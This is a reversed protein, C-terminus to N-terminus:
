AGMTWQFTHKAQNWIYSNGCKCHIKPSLNIKNSLISKNNRDAEMAKLKHAKNCNPCKVTNDM